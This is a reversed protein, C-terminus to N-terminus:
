GNIRVSRVAVDPRALAMDRLPQAALPTAVGATNVAATDLNRIVAVLLVARDKPIGTFDAVFTAIGAQMASLTQGTLEIRRSQAGTGKVFSWGDALAIATAGAPSNLVQEVASVWPVNAAPWLDTRNWVAANVVAPDVWQLLTVHVSNGNISGRGRQHVVVDVRAKGPPLACSAQDGEGESLTATYEFLDAMLPTASGWPEATDHPAAMNANWVASTLQVTKGTEGAGRLDRLVENFHDDWVGNPRVRLDGTRSRLAAQFRRLDEAVIKKQGKKWPLTAPAPVSRPAARPRVDPSGHWSRPPVSPSKKSPPGVTPARLDRRAETARARHRLDDEHARVYTLQPVVPQDLRLEWVGRAAVAARLLRVGGDSFIQLDHVTAEPLGVLHATWAWAPVGGTITRAGKWVGLTTGVWVENPFQPDCAIATVPAPVGGNATNTLGTAHWTSTGDFWWLTDVTPDGPKGITGLYLAGHTGRANVPQAVTPTNLNIALVTWTKTVLLQAAGPVKDKNKPNTRSTLTFSSWKGAKREFRQIRMQEAKKSPFKESLTWAVETGQWSCVRISEAAKDAGPLHSWNKGFDSSFWLRHTGILLQASNGKAIAAPSSYFASLDDREKLTPGVPVSGASGTRNWYGSHTQSVRQTPNLPNLAIGGADGDVAHFWVASSRREIVGNDQLGAAVHGECQPHCGLYNSQIVALGNNRPEFGVLQTPHNSRYAGGDCGVWLQAGNKAFRVDHVDAHVGAGLMQTKTFKLKGSKLVVEGAVVAGAEAGGSDVMTVGSPTVSKFTNGGLVVRDPATPDVALSMDYYGQKGLVKPVDGVSQSTPKANGSCRVRHLSPAKSKGNDVFVYLQTPVADAKAVALVGRGASSENATVKHKIIQDFVAAGTARVWLGAQAGESVWVWLREPTTGGGPTWLADTCADNAGTFPALGLQPWDAEAAPAAPREFLGYYTAAVAGSGSPQFALRYIGRNALNKGERVWPNDDDLTHGPYHTNDYVLIGVGGKEDGPAADHSRPEATGVFIRDAAANAGFFVHIAGCSQRNAPRDIQALEPTATFGGIPKWTSGEDQSLWVGGQASAAYIRKADKEVALMRVRGAVRQRGVTQGDVVTHPGLPQWLLTNSSAPARPRIVLGGSQPRMARLVAAVQGEADLTLDTRATHRERRGPHDAQEEEAEQGRPVGQPWEYRSM